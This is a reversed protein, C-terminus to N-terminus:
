QQGGTRPTLILHEDGYKEIYARSLAWCRKSTCIERFCCTAFGNKGFESWFDDQILNLPFRSDVFCPAGPSICEPFGKLALQKGTALLIKVVDPFLAMVDHMSVIMDQTDSREMPFYNWMHLECIPGDCLLRLLPVIGHYNCRTLVTNTIINVPFKSLNVIGAMTERFSGPVRTIADHVPELGHVSVFFENVGADVLRHVYDRDALRRGNTQLQIKNFRGYSSAEKVYRELYEFTTIEAGSLILGDYRGDKVLGRVLSRFAEPKVTGLKHKVNALMCISCDNNCSYWVPIVAYRSLDIGNGQSERSMM